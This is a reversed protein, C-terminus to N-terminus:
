IETKKQDEVVDGGVPVVAKQSMQTREGQRDTAAIAMILAGGRGGGCIDSDMGWGKEGAM